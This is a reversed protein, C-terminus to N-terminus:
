STEQRDVQVTRRGDLVLTGPQGDRHVAFKTGGKVLGLYGDVVTGSGVLVDGPRLDKPHVSLRTM